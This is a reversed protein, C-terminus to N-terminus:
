GVLYQRSADNRFESFNKIIIQLQQHDFEGSEDEEEDSGDKEAGESEGDSSNARLSM